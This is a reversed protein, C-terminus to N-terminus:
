IIITHNPTYNPRKGLMAENEVICHAYPCCKLPKHVTKVMESGLITQQPVLSLIHYSYWMVETGIFLQCHM